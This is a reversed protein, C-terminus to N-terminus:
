SAVPARRRYGARDRPQSLGDSSISPLVAAPTASVPATAGLVPGGLVPGGLVPDGLVPDGLVPGALTPGSLASATLVPGTLVPGTMVTGSISAAVETYNRARDNDKVHDACRGGPINACDWCVSAATGSARYVAADALAALVVELQRPTLAAEDRGAQRARRILSAVSAANRKDWTVLRTLFQRDRVGLRVGTLAAHLASRATVRGSGAAALSMQQGPPRGAAAVRAVAGRQVPVGPQGAEAPDAVRAANVTRASQATRTRQGPAQGGTPVGSGAAVRRERICSPTPIIATQSSTRGNGLDTIV